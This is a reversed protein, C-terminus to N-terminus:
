VGLDAPKTNGIGEALESCYQILADIETSKDFVRKAGLALCRARMDKTAYNSLVVLACRPELQQAAKLVGLGSGRKLFIDIIVLQVTNAPQTLWQMAHWEDEAMGVVEVPTLEELTAVLSQQIVPSDEVLFTKLAPMSLAYTRSLYGCTHVCLGQKEM